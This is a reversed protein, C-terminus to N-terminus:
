LANAEDRTVPSASRLWSLLFPRLDNDRARPSVEDLSGRSFQWYIMVSSIAAYFCWVSAFAYYWALQAVILGAVTLLGFWRVVRHESLLLAGCTALIYLGSLWPHGTAPNHYAISSNQITATSPYTFVGYAHRAFVVTGLAILALIARRRWGAPEMLAVSVPMVLPLLGVAYLMYLFVAHDLAVAGTRGELGLWVLGEISQHLAFLLPVCAFLLTRPERVHRLTAVGAIAIAGSAAFSANASFCM